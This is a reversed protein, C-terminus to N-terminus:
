SYTVIYYSTDTEKTVDIRMLTGISFCGTKGTGSQAQAIIDRGSNMPLIAKKQIPSPKEFGISHIGRLLNIDCDLDDWSNINSDILKDDVINVDNSTTTDM